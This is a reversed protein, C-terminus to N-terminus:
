ARCRLQILWASVASIEAQRATPCSFAADLYAKAAAVRVTGAGPSALTPVSLRVYWTVLVANKTRLEFAPSREGAALSYLGKALDWTQRRLVEFNRSLDDTSSSVLTTGIGALGARLDAVHVEPMGATLLCLATEVRPRTERRLHRGELQMAGAGISGLIAPRLRGAVDLTLATRARVSGDIFRVPVATPTGACAIPQWDAVEREWALERAVADDLEELGEATELPVPGTPLEDVPRASYDRRLWALPFTLNPVTM